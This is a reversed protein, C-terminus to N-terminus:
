SRVEKPPPASQRSWMVHGDVPDLRSFTLVKQANTGKIRLLVRGGPATRPDSLRHEEATLLVCNDPDWKKAPSASRSRIHAVEGRQLESDHGKVVPTGSARSRGQDRKWVKARCAQEAKLADPRRPHTKAKTPAPTASRPAPAGPRTGKPVARRQAHLEAMTPLNSLVKSDSLRM